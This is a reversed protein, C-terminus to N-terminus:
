SSKELSSKKKTKLQQIIIIQLLFFHFYWKLHQMYTIYYFLGIQLSIIYLLLFFPDHEGKKKAKVLQKHALFTHPHKIYFFFGHLLFKYLIRSLLKCKFHQSITESFFFRRFCCFFIIYFIFVSSLFGHVTCHVTFYDKCIFSKRETKRKKKIWLKMNRM